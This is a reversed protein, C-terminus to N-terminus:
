LHQTTVWSFERSTAKVTAGGGVCKGSEEISKIKEPTLDQYFKADKRSTVGFFITHITTKPPAKLHWEWYAVDQEMSVGVLALGQGSITTPTKRVITPASMTESITLAKKAKQAQLEMEKDGNSSDESCCCCSCCAGM